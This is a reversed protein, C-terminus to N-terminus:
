YASGGEGCSLAGQIGGLKERIQGWAPRAGGYQEYFPSFSKDQEEGVDPGGIDRGIGYGFAPALQALYRGRGELLNRIPASFQNTSQLQALYRTFAEQPGQSSYALTRPDFAM